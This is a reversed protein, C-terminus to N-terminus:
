RFVKDGSVLFTKNEFMHILEEKLEALVDTSSLGLMFIEVALVRKSPTQSLRYIYKRVTIEM